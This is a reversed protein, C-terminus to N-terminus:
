EAAFRLSTKERMGDVSTDDKAWEIALRRGTTVDDFIIGSLITLTVHYWLLFTLTVDDSGFYFRLLSTM